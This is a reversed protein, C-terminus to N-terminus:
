SSKGNKEVVPEVRQGDNVFEQGVTIVKVRDPLGTVWAGAPDDSLVRVPKFAVVGNDVVRVGVSTGNTGQSIALAVDLGLPVNNPVRATIKYVGITNPVLEASEVNLRIGGITVSPETLVQAAPDGPAPVGADVAPSTRGLGTLYINITDNRHVPNTDTVLFGNSARYAAPLFSSGYYRSGGQPGSSM